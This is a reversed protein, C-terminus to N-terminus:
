IRMPRSRAAGSGAAWSVSSRWGFMDPRHVVMTNASPIDVRIRRHHDVAASRFARDEFATPVDEASRLPLEHGTELTMAHVM